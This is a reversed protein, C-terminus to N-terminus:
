EAKKARETAAAREAAHSYYERQARVQILEREPYRLGTLQGGFVCGSDLNITNNIWLVEDVPTHGYVVAAQGKYAAAWDRRVPFGEEDEEGTPDGFLCFAKAKRSEVGHLSESLGGHAVVLRGEDLVLHMPLDGLFEFLEALFEPSEGALQDLTEQLGRSVEVDNGKLQRMLKNDHNGMVCFGHGARVMNMALRLVAPCKPGRDALDGLFVLRRGAPPLAQPNAENADVEYGLQRLLELLEDFCGHVDGVLDFPGREEPRLIESPNKDAGNMM